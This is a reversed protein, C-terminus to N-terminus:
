CGRGPTPVCITPASITQGSQDITLGGQPGALSMLRTGIEHISTAVTGLRDGLRQLDPYSEVLKDALPELHTRWAPEIAAIRSLLETVVRLAELVEGRRGLVTTEMVGIKTLMAGIVQRSQGLLRVYEEAVDLARHVDRNQRNVVDVFSAMADTLQQISGPSKEMAATLAAINRRLTDGDIAALPRDSEQLAKTLSYPLRVRDAPIPTSGLPATGASFVAVYHGGIATLMRIDLTSRDGLFVNRDVTFTMRVSDEQLELSRVSGVSIGAIRVDDGAQISGAETLEATYTSKGIPLVYIIASVAMMLVVVVLGGIGLVLQRRRAAGEHRDNGLALDTARRLLTRLRQQM